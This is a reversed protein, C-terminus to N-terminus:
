LESMFRHVRAALMPLDTGFSTVLDQLRQPKSAAFANAASTRKLYTSLAETQQETFLFTLGWALAYAENTDTLFYVDDTVLKALTGEDPGDPFYYRYAALQDRNVRDHRKTFTSSNYVGPAEFLTGIGECLWRPPPSFRSHIGTNFATQHAAEHIVTALNTSQNAYMLVRNSDSIYFGMYGPGLNIGQSRVYRLFTAENPLIVAVLPFQPEHVDIGRVSFYSIMERYLMEFRAAWQQSDGAQHVVLYHETASVDFQAGFERRLLDRMTAPTYSQFGPRLKQVNKADRRNLVQMSGDRFLMHVQTKTWTLPTGERRQGHVDMGLTWTKGEACVAATFFFVLLLLVRMAFGLTSPQSQNDQILFTNRFILM